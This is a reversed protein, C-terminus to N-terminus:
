RLSREDLVKKKKLLVIKGLLGMKFSALSGGRSAACVMGSRLLIVATLVFSLFELEVTHKKWSWHFQLHHM